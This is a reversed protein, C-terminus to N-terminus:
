IHYCVRSQCTNYQVCGVNIGDLRGIWAPLKPKTPPAPGVWTTELASRASLVLMVSGEPDSKTSASAPM